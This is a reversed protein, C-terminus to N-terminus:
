IEWWILYNKSAYGNGTASKYPSLNPPLCTAVFHHAFAVDESFDALHCGNTGNESFVVYSDCLVVSDVALSILWNHPSNCGATQTDLPYRAKQLHGSCKHVDSLGWFRPVTFAAM